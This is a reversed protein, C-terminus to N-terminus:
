PVNLMSLLLLIPFFQDQGEGWDVGLGAVPRGLGSFFDPAFSHARGRTPCGTKFFVFAAPSPEGGPPDKVPGPDASPRRAPV